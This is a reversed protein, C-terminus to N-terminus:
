KAYIDTPQLFCGVVSPSSSIVATTSLTTSSKSTAVLDKPAAMAMITLVSCLMALKPWGREVNQRKVDSTPNTRPLKAVLQIFWDTM